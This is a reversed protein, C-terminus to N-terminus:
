IDLSKLSCNGHANLEASSSGKLFRGLLGAVIWLTACFYETCTDGPRRERTAKLAVSREGGPERGSKSRQSEQKCRGRLVAEGNAEEGEINNKGEKVEEM